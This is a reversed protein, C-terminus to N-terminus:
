VFPNEQSLIPVEHSNKHSKKNPYNKGKTSTDKEKERFVFIHEPVVSQLPNLEVYEQTGLPVLIVTENMNQASTALQPTRM